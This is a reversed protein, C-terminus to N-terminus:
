ANSQNRDPATDNRNNNNSNKKRKRCAQLPHGWRGCYGCRHEKPCNPDNCKGKNYPWCVNDKSFPRGGQNTPGSDKTLHDRMILNWGQLYTKAWSRTPYTGMLQRFTFDYEAVNSWQFSSAASNIVHVYQWIESARSPNAKSYIAAYVRFAQEWRRVNTIKIDKEITPAFYTLGDKTFLGMRSDSGAKTFPKNKTLLKELEVFQGQEIKSKIAPDVHCTIHFFEDDVVDSYNIMNTGPPLDLRAKNQETEVLMRRAVEKAQDMWDQMTAPDPDAHSPGPVPEPDPPAVPQPATRVTGSINLESDPEPMPATPQVRLNQLYQAVQQELNDRPM